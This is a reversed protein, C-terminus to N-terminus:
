KGEVVSKRDIHESKQAVVGIIREKKYSDNILKISKDRGVTIPIVVGPFLVTNKLPLISLEAPIQEKDMEEEEETSLLSIFEPGDDEIVDSMGINEFTTKKNSMKNNTAIVIAMGVM